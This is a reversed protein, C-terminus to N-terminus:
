IAAPAATFCPAERLEEATLEIVAQAVRRTVPGSVGQGIPRGDLSAVPMVDLSTSTIFAESATRFEELTFPEEAVEVGARAAADLAMARTVGSLIRGGRPHTRAVGDRVCWITTSGGETVTGDERFLLAEFAGARSAAQKALVVPLLCISKIYCRNWREDPQASLAVGAERQQATYIPAPRFSATVTPAVPTKPFLHNRPAVGRTVQQYLLSIQSEDAPLQSEAALRRVISDWEEASPAGEISLHACSEQLRQAHEPLRLPRRGHFRTVEYVGDGFQFGRDEVHVVAEDRQVIRGNVYVIDRM